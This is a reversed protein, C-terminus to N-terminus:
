DGSKLGRSPTQIGVLAWQVDFDITGIKERKILYHGQNVHIFTSISSIRSSKNISIGCFFNNLQRM